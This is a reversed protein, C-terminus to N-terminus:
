LSSTDSNHAYSKRIWSLTLDEAQTRSEESSFTHDAHPLELRVLRPHAIAKQWAPDKSVYELFEKATYDEGSLLLFVDGNFADLAAAMRRQFPQQTTSTASGPAAAFTMRISRVLGPLAQLAVEGRLLKTWFEKQLLRQFYYHKVQTRALSATSRVWPNLLCLANVRRDHSEHCYLLAASAGDCLGWLAVQTVSPVRAQLADIAAAIDTSLTEFNRQDGQSDGMGRYDFRLVAYGASALKRSLLVFQRHSGVRYQPGGVIVVVGTEPPFEPKTLIGLLRDGACDFFAIEERYNM